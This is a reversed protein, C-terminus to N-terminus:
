VFRATLRNGFAIGIDSAYREWRQVAILDVPEDSDDTARIPRPRKYSCLGVVEGDTRDDIRPCLSCRSTEKDHRPRNTYSQTLSAELRYVCAKAIKVVGLM